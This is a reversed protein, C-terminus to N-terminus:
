QNLIRTACLYDVSEGGPLPPYYGGLYNLFFKASGQLLYFFVTAGLGTLIGILISYIFWKGISKFDPDRM